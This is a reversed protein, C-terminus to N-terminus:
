NLLRERLLENWGRSIIGNHWNHKDPHARLCACAFLQADLPPPRAVVILRSQDLNAGFDQSGSMHGIHVCVRQAQLRHHLTISKPLAVSPTEYTTARCLYGQSSNNLEFSLAFM